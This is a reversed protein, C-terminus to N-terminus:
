QPRKMLSNTLRQAELAEQFEMAEQQRRQAELVRITQQCMNIAYDTHPLPGNVEIKLGFNPRDTVTIVLQIPKYITDINSRDTPETM